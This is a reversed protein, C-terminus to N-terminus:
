AARLIDSLDLTNTAQTKLSNHLAILERVRHISINFQNLVSQM